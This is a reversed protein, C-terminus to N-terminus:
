LVAIIRIGITQCIMHTSDVDSASRPFLDVRKLYFSIVNKLFNLYDIIFSKMGSLAILM